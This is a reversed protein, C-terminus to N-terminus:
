LFQELFKQDGETALIYTRNGITWSATVYGPEPGDKIVPKPNAPSGTASSQDTIFLWLDSPHGPKLPRRTQFCLMSVKKGQWTTAVCGAAKANKELNQPLVYDAVSNSQALTQRIVNLDNTYIDMTGYGRITNGVISDSFYKFDHPESPKWNSYVEFFVLAVVAVAGVALVAKQWVPVTSTRVKREAIIQEKLGEPVAIQKFKARMASYLACHEAFWKKLEASRECSVLAEAFTPDASDATGPRYLRLIEKAEIDTM